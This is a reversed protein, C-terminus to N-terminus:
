GATSTMRTIGEEPTADVGGTWGDSRM